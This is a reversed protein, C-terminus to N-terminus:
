ENNDIDSFFNVRVVTRYVNDEEDSTARYVKDVEVNDFSTGEAFLKCIWTFKNNAEEEGKGKPTCIDIQFFGSFRQLGTEYMGITEPEDIMFSVVFYRSDAPIEFLRNDRYSVNTFESTAIVNVESLDSVDSELPSVLELTDGSSKAKVEYLHNKDKGFYVYWGKLITGEGSSISIVTDGESFSGNVVYKSTPINATLFNKKSFVNLSNFRNIFSKKIEIDKM